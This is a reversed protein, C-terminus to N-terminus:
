ALPDPGGMGDPLRDPSGQDATKPETPPQEDPNEVPRDAAPRPEANPPQSPLPAHVLPEAEEPRLGEVAEAEDSEPASSASAAPGSPQGIPRAPYGYHALVERSLAAYDEAGNSQPAYGFIDMGFSPAEALKINRRIRSQFVVAEAWPVPQGRSQEIFRELDALVENALKTGSEYMCLVVGSVKLRHNIRKAVLHVTELLKGLGQLALFHPQLTIFVEDAACLANLTLIGLSPPCDIFMFKYDDGCEEVADRLIVERGVVSSLEVEAAALDINSPALWLNEDVKALVEALSKQQSLVHYINPTEPRPEVGLHTTLNAQPDLDVVIVPWGARAIAPGLNAVTTTKGVGGKQNIVAIRHM